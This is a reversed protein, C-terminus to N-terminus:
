FNYRGWVRIINAADQGDVDADAMVYAALLTTSGNFVKTTYILDLESPNSGTDVNAMRDEVAYGYNAIVTGGLVNASAGVKVYDTDSQIVGQNAVMQTYLPTKNGNQVNAIGVVGDDVSSYAVSANVMAVKTSVKAGFATTEVGDVADGMVTGGQLAIKAIGADYKADAWVISLDDSGGGLEPAYYYTGTIALNAVSKNVATLMYVGNDDGTTGDPNISYFNSMDGHNNAKFVVAGVLTTDPIDSNVVLAADFTNKFVNWGESFAFPSLAKPLEQRGMKFSTNGAAYTLYAQSIWGGRGAADSTNAAQMIYDVVDEQLGLTSLGSVEVGAGIGAFLDKNVARLQVGANAGANSQEFLSGTGAEVTQYYVVAQGSFDWASTEAVPAPTEVVPEVPAISGGAMIMTSAVVSLLLTKKM